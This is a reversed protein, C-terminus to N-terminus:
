AARRLRRPEMEAVLPACHRVWGLICWVCSAVIATIFVWNYVTRGTKGLFPDAVNLAVGYAVSATLLTALPLVVGRFPNLWTWGEPPTAALRRAGLWAMVLAGGYGAFQVLDSAHLKGIMTTRFLPLQGLILAFLFALWMAVGYKTLLKRLVM